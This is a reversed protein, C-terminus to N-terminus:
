NSLHVLLFASFASVFHAFSPASSAAMHLWIRVVGRLASGAADNAARGSMTRIDTIVCGLGRVLPEAHSKSDSRVHIRWWLVCVPPQWAAEAM